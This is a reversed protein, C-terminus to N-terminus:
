TSSICERREFPNKGVQGQSLTISHNKGKKLLPIPQTILNKLDKCYRVIQPLTNSFFSGAEKRNASTRIYQNLGSFDIRGAANYKKVAEEIAHVSKLKAIDLAETIISWRFSFDSVKLNHYFGVM